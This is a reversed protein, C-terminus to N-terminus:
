ARSRAKDRYPPPWIRGVRAPHYPLPGCPWFAAPPRGRGRQSRAAFFSPREGNRSAQRPAVVRPAPRPTSDVCTFRRFIDCDVKIYYILICFRWGWGLCEATRQGFLVETICEVGTAPHRTRHANTGDWSAVRGDVAAPKATLVIHAAPSMSRLRRNPFIQASLANADAECTVQHKFVMSAVGLLTADREQEAEVFPPVDPLGRSM